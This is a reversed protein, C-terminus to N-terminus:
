GFDGKIAKGIWSLYQEHLPRDLGLKKELNARLEPNAEIGLMGSVVDGPILQMILFISLSIGILIPILTLVRRIIYARM